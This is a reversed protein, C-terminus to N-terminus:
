LAKEVFEMTKKFENPVILIYDKPKSISLAHKIAKEEDVIRKVKAKLNKKEIEEKATNYVIKSIEGPKRYFKMWKKMTRRKGDVKDYVIIYDFIRTASRAYDKLQENTRDPAFRIVAIKKADKNKGHMKKFLNSAEKLSYKEHAFDIFITKDDKKILINRGLSPDFSFNNLSDFVEKIKTRNGVYAYIIALASLIAVNAPGFFGNHTWSIKQTKGILYKSDKTKIFIETTKPNFVFCAGKNKLHEDLNFFVKKEEIFFPIFVSEKPALNLYKCVLNDNANFIAFPNGQESKLASFVIKAKRKAIQNKTKGEKTVGLHDEYVNLFAGIQNRPFCTGFLLSSGISTELISIAKIKELDENLLEFM